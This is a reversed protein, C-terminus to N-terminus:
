REGLVRAEGQVVGPRDLVGDVLREVVREGPKGIAGQEEVAHAVRERAGFPRPCRDATRKQSRSPKLVTLSLRPWRM